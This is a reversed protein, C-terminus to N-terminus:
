SRRDMVGMAAWEEASLGVAALADSTSMGLALLRTMTARKEERRGKALGEELGAQKGDRFSTKVESERIRRDKIFDDYEEREAASLRLIALCEAAAGLGQAKFDSKIESNKLFYIWEDLSDRAVDDFNNVKLIFYEPFINTPTEAHFLERQHSSLALIDAHHIGRFETAGRYVYDAGQGLDFYVINVSIVKRIRDYDDGANLYDVILKSSGFLMRHFYDSQGDAQVEILLLDGGVEQALIDVRNSKNTATERNGESELIREIRISRHLLESLFGELVAFNAKNRLLKKMAWDFRVLTEKM